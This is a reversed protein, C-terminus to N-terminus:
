IKNRLLIHVGRTSKWKDRQRDRSGVLGADSFWEVVRSQNELKAFKSNKKKGNRIAKAVSLFVTHFSIIEPIMISSYYFRPENSLRRPQYIGSWFSFFDDCNLSPIFPTREVSFNERIGRSRGILSVYSRLYSFVHRSQPNLNDQFLLCVVRFIKFYINIRIMLYFPISSILSNCLCAM